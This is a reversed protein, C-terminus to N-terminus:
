RESGGFLSGTIEWCTVFLAAIVPGVIFGSIGFMALGGLTALLVLYDPMKTDRSVLRPRLLNDILGIFLAGIIVLIIAKTVEGSAFLIIAAPVWVFM